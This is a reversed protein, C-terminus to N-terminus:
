IMELEVKRRPPPFAADLAALDAADLTLAAARANAEVHAVRGSKPIAIVDGARM